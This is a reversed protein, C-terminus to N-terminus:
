LQSSRQTYKVGKNNRDRLGPHASNSTCVKQNSQEYQSVNTSVKKLQLRHQTHKV